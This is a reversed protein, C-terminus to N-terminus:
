LAILSVVPPLGFLIQYWQRRRRDVHHLSGNSAGVVFSDPDDPDQAVATYVYRRSAVDIEEWSVGQDDSRYVKVEAGKRKHWTAPPGAATVVYVISGLARGPRATLMSTCYREGVEGEAAHWTVGRDPSCYFGGGTAAYIRAPDGSDVALRHIDDYLGDNISRWSRGGDDSRYAGGIEVGAYVRLPERVDCVITQVHAARDGYGRWREQGALAGFETLETWTRGADRSLHIAAPETGAFLLGDGHALGTLATVASASRPGELPRWSQGRDDSAFLRGARTGIFAGGGITTACTIEDRELASAMRRGAREGEIWRITHVGGTTAVVLQM